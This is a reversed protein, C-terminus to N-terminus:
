NLNVVAFLTVKPAPEKMKQQIINKEIKKVLAAYKFAELNEVDTIIYHTISELNNASRKNKIHEYMKADTFIILYCPVDLLASMRDIAVNLERSHTNYKTLDFCATVLTCDPIM